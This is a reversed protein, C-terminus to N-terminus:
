QSTHPDMGALAPFGPVAAPAPRPRPTWGRSRPSDGRAAQAAATPYPGDGRARPIRRAACGARCSGPDMGALAPFGEGARGAPGAVPTWGRSRPSDQRMAEVDAVSRPGDGRARPIGLHPVGDGGEVRDMGALAPFGPPPCRRVAQFLTWGRSRPSDAITRSASRAALPGDGRARPIGPTAGRRSAPPPDMGALAPFGAGDVVVGLRGRTWGRSRPSDRVQRDGLLDGPPGDGRARPIRNRPPWSRGRNPDMGALAPFGDTRPDGDRFLLTWGRSRPSDRKPGSHIRSPVPGDGRARPIRPRGSVAAASQPDMGALAPFGLDRGVAALYAPTWGRSRPSDVLHVHVRRGPGPGDGRARPIRRSRRCSRVGRPDMGALAPFGCLPGAPAPAYATWGRSRPSDGRGGVASCGHPPGDGRARPIRPHCTMTGAVRPDMGALAPFGHESAYTPAGTPTWGRSRPSDRRPGPQSSGQRPGDGRARPIRGSGAAGRTKDLDMGALAPFGDRVLAAVDRPPTWGRSRPSDLSSRFAAIRRSPGDGRARPIRGSSSARGACTPDMGALAPFGRTLWGTKAADGTWGRSRPSDMTPSRPPVRMSPGDGRARPIRGSLISDRAAMPDMGALAPFGIASEDSAGTRLTWGRSRPSDVSGVKRRPGQPPGDGRARPIWGKWM